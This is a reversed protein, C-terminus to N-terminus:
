YVMGFYGMEIGVAQMRCLQASQGEYIAIGVPPKSQFLSFSVFRNSSYVLRFGRQELLGCYEVDVNNDFSCSKFYKDDLAVGM